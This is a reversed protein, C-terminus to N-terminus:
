KSIAVLSAKSDSGAWEVDAAWITSGAFSLSQPKILGRSFTQGCQIESTEFSGYITNIKITNNKLYVYSSESWKKDYARQCFCIRMMQMLLWFILYESLVLREVHQGPTLKCLEVACLGRYHPMSISICGKAKICHVLDKACWWPTTQQHFYDIKIM